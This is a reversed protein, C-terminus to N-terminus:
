FPMDYDEQSCPVNNPPITPEVSARETESNVQNDNKTPIEVLDQQNSLYQTIDQAKHLPAIPANGINHEINVSGSSKPTIDFKKMLSSLKEVNVAHECTERHEGINVSLECCHERCLKPDGDCSSGFRFCAKFGDRSKRTVLMLNTRVLSGIKKPSLAKRDPLGEIVNVKEAIDGMTPAGFGDAILGDIAVLTSAEYTASRSAVLERQCDFMLNKVDGLFEKDGAALSALPLFIQNLRSELGPLKLGSEDTIMLKGFNRLRFNVLRNRLRTAEEYFASPLHLPIDDRIKKSEFPVTICRSELATDKFRERTAIVKPGYVEYAEPKLVRGKLEATRLVPTGREFGCNLIKIMESWIGSDKFDGEDLVLTGRICDIIRFIPSVTAAGSVFMPKYSIAGVAKTFRSKGTGYDGMARLYSVAYFDDYVWTLLGYYAALQEVKLSVDSYKHIFQKIENILEAMSGYDESKTPLLVVGKSVLLPDIGPVFELNNHRCSSAYIVKDGDFVGLMVRGDISFLEILRNNGLNAFCIPTLIPAEEKQKNKIPCDDDCYVQIQPKDCGYSGYDKYASGIKVKIIDDGLPPTNKKDWASLITLAIDEPVGNKKLHIGLRFACEDRAGEPVGAMMKEFCPLTKKLPSSKPLATIGPLPEPIGAIIRDLDDEGYKPVNNLFDLQDDFPAYGNDPNLFVTRGRKALPPFLPLNIYNGYPADETTRDQKPFLEHKKTVGAQNAIYAMVKMSKNALVKDKFFLWGHYGKVRSTELSLDFGYEKCKERVAVVEKLTWHDFDIAQFNCYESDVLPYIGIHTTGKIFHEALLEDTVPEKVCRGDALGYCHDKGRFLAKVPDLLTPIQKLKDISNM